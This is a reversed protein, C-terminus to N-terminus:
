SHFLFCFHGWYKSVHHNNREQSESKELTVVDFLITSILHRKIQTYALIQQTVM